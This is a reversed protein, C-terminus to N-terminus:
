AKTPLTLHTYSVAELTAGRDIRNAIFRVALKAFGDLENKRGEDGKYLGMLSNVLQDITQDVIKQEHKEIEKIAGKPVNLNELEKSKLRIDLINKYVTTLGVIIATIAAAQGITSALFLTLASTQVIRIRLSAANQDVIESIKRLHKDWSALEEALGELNNDFLQRPLVIGIEAEDSDSQTASLGLSEASNVFSTLQKKAATIDSKLANLEAIVLKPTLRNELLIDDLKQVLQDGILHTIQMETLVTLATPSRLSKPAERLSRAEELAQKYNELAQPKANQVTTANLTSAVKGILTDPNSQFYDLVVRAVDTARTINM